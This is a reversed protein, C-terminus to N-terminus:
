QRRKRSSKQSTASKKPTCDRMKHRRKKKQKKQHKKRKRKNEREENEKDTDDSEDSDSESSDSEESGDNSDSESDSERESESEIESEDDEDNRRRQKKRKKRKKNSNAKSKKKKRKSVDKMDIDENEDQDEDDAQNDDSDENQRERDRHKRKKIDKKRPKKKIDRASKGSLKQRKNPPEGDDDDQQNNISLNSMNRHMDDSTIIHSKRNDRDDDGDDDDNEIENRKRKRGSHKHKNKKTKEVMSVDKEEEDQDDNSSSSDDGDQDDDDDDSSDSDNNRQLPQPEKKLQQQQRRRKRKNHNDDVDDETIAFGRQKFSKKAARKLSVINKLTGFRNLITNHEVLYYQLDAVEKGQRKMIRLQMLKSKEENKNDIHHGQKDDYHLQDIFRQIADYHQSIENIKGEFKVSPLLEHRELAEDVKCQLKYLNAFIKLVNGKFRNPIECKILPGSLTMFHNIRHTLNTICENIHKKKKPSKAYIYQKPITLNMSNIDNNEDNDNFIYLKKFRFNSPIMELIKCAFAIIDIEQNILKLITELLYNENKNDFPLDAVEDLDSDDDKVERQKELYHPGFHIQM